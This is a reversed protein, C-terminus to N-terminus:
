EIVILDINKNKLDQKYLEKLAEIDVDWWAINSPLTNIILRELNESTIYLNIHKM